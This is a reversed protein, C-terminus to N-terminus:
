ERKEARKWNMLLSVGTSQWGTLQIGKIEGKIPLQLSKFQTCLGKVIIYVSPYYLIIPKISVQIFNFSTM